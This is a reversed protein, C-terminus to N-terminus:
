TPCILSFVCTVYQPGVSPEWHGNCVDELLRDLAAALTTSRIAGTSTYHLAIEGGYEQHQALAYLTIHTSQPDHQAGYGDARRADAEHQQDHEPRRHPPQPQRVLLRPRPPM